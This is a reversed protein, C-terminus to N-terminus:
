YDYIVKRSKEEQTLHLVEELFAEIDDQIYLDPIKYGNIFISPTEKINLQSFLDSTKESIEDAIVRNESDKISDLMFQKMKLSSTYWEELYWIVCNQGKSQYIFEINTMLKQIIPNHAIPFHIILGIDNSNELLIKLKFFVITCPKCYLSLFAHIILSASPNGFILGQKSLDIELRKENLILQRFVIPNRKIKNYAIQTSIFDRKKLYYAKISLYLIATLFLILAIQFFEKLPYNHIIPNNFFLGLEVILVFQIILCLTCWTKIKFAQYYISFIPYPITIASLVTLAAFKFTSDLCFLYVLTATFYILGADGWTVWSFIRAANSHIVSDCDTKKSQICLKQILRNQINFESLVILISTSLGILKTCILIWWTPSIHYLDKGFLNYCIVFVLIIVVVPILLSDLM